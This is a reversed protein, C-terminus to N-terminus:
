VDVEQFAKVGRGCIRGSRKNIEDFRLRYPPYEKMYGMDRSMNMCAEWIMRAAKTFHEEKISRFMGSVALAYRPIDSSDFVPAAVSRLGIFHEGNEIAVGNGRIREMERLMGERTVITQAIAPMYNRATGLVDWSSSVVNGLEFLHMGLRYHGTVGDQEIVHFQRLTSLLGYVTSKPYECRMSLEQLSLPTRAAALTDLLHMAKEVSKIDGSM